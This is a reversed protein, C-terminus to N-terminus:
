DHLIKILLLKGKKVSVEATTGPIVENSTAYQYSPTITGSNLPFKANTVTVGDAKGNLTILSFYKYEDSIKVPESGAIEMESYDDAIFAHANNDHLYLLVSVNVLSHDLRAGILGALMFDKFGRKLAEKAAYFSDTDDKARPLTITETETVPKEHSDFDGIILNPTIDLEKLHKLGGDCVIIYDDKRLYKKIRSYNNIPAAGIIVCRTM